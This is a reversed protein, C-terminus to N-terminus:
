SRSKPLIIGFPAYIDADTRYSMVYHVLNDFQSVKGAYYPGENSYIFVASENKLSHQMFDSYHTSKKAFIVIGDAKEESKLVPRCKWYQCRLRKFVNPSFFKM